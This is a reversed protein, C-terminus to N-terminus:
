LDLARSSGGARADYRDLLDARKTGAAGLGKRASKTITERLGAFHSRDAIKQGQGGRYEEISPLRKTTTSFRLREKELWCRANSPRMSGLCRTIMARLPWGVNGAQAGSLTNESIM